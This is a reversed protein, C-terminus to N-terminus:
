TADGFAFGISPGADGGPDKEHGIREFGNMEAQGIESRCLSLLMHRVVLRQLAEVRDDLEAHEIGRKGRWRGRRVLAVAIDDGSPRGARPGTMVALDRAKDVAGPIEERRLHSPDGIVGGRLGHQHALRRGPLADRAQKAGDRAEADVRGGIVGVPQRHARSGHSKEPMSAASPPLPSMRKMTLLSASASVAESRKWDPQDPRASTPREPSVSKVKLTEGSPLAQVSDIRM